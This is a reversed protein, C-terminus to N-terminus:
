ESVIEKTKEGISIKKNHGKYQRRGTGRRKSERGSERGQGTRQGETQTELKLKASRKARRESHPRKGKAQLHKSVQNSEEGRSRRGGECSSGNEERKKEVQRKDGVGTKRDRCKKSTGVERKKQPRTPSRVGKLISRKAARKENKTWGAKRKRDRDRREGKRRYGEEAGVSAKL